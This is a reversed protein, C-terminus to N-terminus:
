PAGKLREAQARLAKLRADMEARTLGRRPMKRVGGPLALALRGVEAMYAFTDMDGSQSPPCSQVARVWAGMEESSEWFPEPYIVLPRDDTPEHEGRFGNRVHGYTAEQFRDREEKSAFVFGNIDKDWAGKFGAYKGIDADGSRSRAM